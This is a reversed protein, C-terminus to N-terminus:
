RVKMSERYDITLESDTAIAVLAVLVLDDKLRRMICNPKRSHNVYRGAETRMSRLRAPCIYGVDFPKTAFLGLGEIKSERLALGIQGLPLYLRDGEFVSQRRAIEHTFGSEELMARYDERDCWLNYDAMNIFTIEDVMEDPKVLDTRHVTIWGTDAVAYGARKRGPIGAMRNSGTLHKIGDPTAVHIDGYLMIDVYAYKHVRGILLTDALIVIERIYMGNVFTETVPIEVQPQTLMLEQLQEIPSNDLLENLVEAIESM